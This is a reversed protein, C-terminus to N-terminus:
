EEALLQDLTWPCQQPFSSVPQSTEKSALTVGYQYIEQLAGLAYNQLVKSQLLLNLQRRQEFITCEWSPVRNVTLTKKLLHTILLGLRSYVERRDRRAMELLFDGFGAFDLETYKHESILKANEEYWATEDEIFLKQLDM